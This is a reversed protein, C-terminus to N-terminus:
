PVTKDDVYRYTLFPGENLLYEKVMSRGDESLFYEAVVTGSRNSYQLYEKVTLKNGSREEFLIKFGRSFQGDPTSITFTGAQSRFDIPGYYIDAGGGINRWHGVLRSSPTSLDRGPNPRQATAKAINDFLPEKWQFLVVGILVAVLALLLSWKFGRRIKSEKAKTKAAPADNAQSTYGGSVQNYQRPELDIEDAERM